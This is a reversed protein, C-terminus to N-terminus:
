LYKIIKYQPNGTDPSLGMYMVRAPRPLKLGSIQNPELIYEHNPKMDQYSSVDGKVAVHKREEDAFDEQKYYNNFEKEFTQKDFLQNHANRHNYAEDSHKQDFDLAGLAQSIIERNAKPDLEPNATARQFGQIEAVKAPGSLTSVDNFVQRMMGKVFEDAAATDGPGIKPVDFGATRLWGAANALWETGRGSQYNELVTRLM